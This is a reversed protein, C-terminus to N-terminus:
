LLSLNMGFNVGGGYLIATVDALTYNTDSNAIGACLSTQYQTFATNYGSSSTPKEALCNRLLLLVTLYFRIQNVM